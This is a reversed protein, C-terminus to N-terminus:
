NFNPLPIGPFAASFDNPTEAYTAGVVKFDKRHQTKILVGFLLSREVQDDHVKADYRIYTFAPAAIFFDFDFCREPTHSFTQEEFTDQNEVTISTGYGAECIFDTVKVMGIVEPTLNERLTYVVFVRGVFAAISKLHKYNQFIDRDEPHMRSELEAASASDSLFIKSM